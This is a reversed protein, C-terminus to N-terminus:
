AGWSGLLRARVLLVRVVLVRQVLLELLGEGAGVRRAGATRADLPRGGPPPGGLRGDEGVSGFRAQGGRMHIDRVVGRVFEARKEPDMDELQQVQELSAGM